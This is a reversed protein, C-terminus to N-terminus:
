ARLGRKRREPKIITAAAVFYGVVGGGPGFGPDVVGCGVQVGYPAVWM